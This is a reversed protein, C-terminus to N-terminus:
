CLAPDHHPNAQQVCSIDGYRRWTYNVAARSTRWWTTSGTQHARRTTRPSTDPIAQAYGRSCNLRAGDSQLPGPSNVDNRNVANPNFPSESSCGTFVPIRQWTAYTPGTQEGFFGIAGAPVSIGVAIPAAQTAKMDEDRKGLRGNFLAVM